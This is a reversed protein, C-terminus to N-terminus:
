IRLEGEMILKAKGRLAVLGGEEGWKGDWRAAFQGGRPSVQDVEVIEPLPSGSKPREEIWYPVLRTHASGCVQDELIGVSPFFVRSRFHTSAAPPSLNTLYIGRYPISLLKISDVRLAGLDISRSLRVTLNDMSPENSPSACVDEVDGAAVGAASYLCALVAERAEATVPRASLSAPLSIEIREDDAKTVVLEHGTESRTGKADIAPLLFQYRIERLTPVYYDLLYASAAMTAHGCLPLAEGSSTHWRILPSPSTSSAAFTDRSDISAHSVFAIAPQNLEIALNKREEAGIPETSLVVAAPNGRYAESTFADLLAVRRPSPVSM